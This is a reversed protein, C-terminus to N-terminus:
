HTVWSLEKEMTAWLHWFALCGQELGKGTQGLGLLQESAIYVIEEGHAVSFTKATQDVRTGHRPIILLSM